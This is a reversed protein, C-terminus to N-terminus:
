GAHLSRALAAPDVDPAVVSWDGGWDAAALEAYVAGTRQQLGDDREDSAQVKKTQQKAM